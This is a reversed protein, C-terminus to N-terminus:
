TSSCNYEGSTSVSFLSLQEGQQQLGLGKFALGRPQIQQCIADKAGYKLLVGNPCDAPTLDNLSEDGFGDDTIDHFRATGDDYPVHVQAISGEALVRQSVGGPPTFYIDRLVIGRHVARARVVFGPVM